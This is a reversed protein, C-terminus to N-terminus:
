PSQETAIQPKHGDKNLAIMCLWPRTRFAEPNTSVLSPQLSACDLRWPMIELEQPVAVITFPLLSYVTCWSFAKMSKVCEKIGTYKLAFLLGDTLLFDHMIPSPWLDQLRQSQGLDLSENGLKVTLKV